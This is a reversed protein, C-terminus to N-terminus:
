DYEIRNFLTRLFRARLKDGLFRIGAWRVALLWYSQLLLIELFFFFFTQVTCMVLAGEIYVYKYEYWTHLLPQLVSRMCVLVLLLFIFCIFSLIGPVLILFSFFCSVACLLSLICFSYWTDYMCLLFRSLLLCVQMSPFRRIDYTCLLFRFLLLSAQMSPFRRTDYTCLLFSLSTPLGAYESVQYM